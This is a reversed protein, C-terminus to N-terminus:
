PKIYYGTLKTEWLDPFYLRVLGVGMSIWFNAEVEFTDTWAGSQSYWYIFVFTLNTKYSSFTGAPVTINEKAVIKADSKTYVSDTINDGDWDGVTDREEYMIWQKGITPVEPFVREPIMDEYSSSWLYGDKYYLLQTTCQEATSYEVYATINDITKTGILKLTDMYTVTDQTVESLKQLFFPGVDGKYEWGYYQTVEYAWWNGVSLPMPLGEEEPPPAARRCITTSLILVNVIIMFKRM